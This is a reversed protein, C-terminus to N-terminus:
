ASVWSLAPVSGLIASMQPVVTLGASPKLPKAVSGERVLLMALEEM